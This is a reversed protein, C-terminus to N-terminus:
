AGAQPLFVRFTTGKGVTSDVDVFGGARAIIGYVSALGLGTGQEKPKTTFFPDFIRERIDENIGCGTDSVSICVYAGPVLERNGAVVRTELIDTDLSTTITGKGGIADRANILLNLVARHLQTPDMEVFASKTKFQTRISIRRPFTARTTKALEKLIDAVELRLPEGNGTGRSFALIEQIVSRAHGTSTEIIEIYRGLSDDETKRKLLETAMRIPALLNNLDHAIDGSIKAIDEFRQAKILM